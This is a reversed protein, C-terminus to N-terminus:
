LVRLTDTEADYLGIPYDQLHLVVGEESMSTKYEIGGVDMIPHCRKNLAVRSALFEPTYIKYEKDDFRIAIRVEGIYKEVAESQFRREGRPKAFYCLHCGGLCCNGGNGSPCGKYKTIPQCFVIKEVRGRFSKHGEWEADSVFPLNVIQGEAFGYEKFMRSKLINKINEIFIDGRKKLLEGGRRRENRKRRKLYFESKMSVKLNRKKYTEKVFKNAIDRERPCTKEFREINRLWVTVPNKSTYGVRGFPHVITAAKMKINWETKFLIPKGSLHLEPRLSSWYRRCLKEQNKVYDYQKLNKRHFGGKLFQSNVKDWNAKFFTIFYSDFDYIFMRLEDPLNDFGSQFKLLKKFNKNGDDKVLMKILSSNM